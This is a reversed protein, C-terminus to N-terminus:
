EHAQKRRASIRRYIFLTILPVILWQLLPALGIGSVLPMARAYSWAGLEYVNRWESFVTYGVGMLTGIAAGPWPRTFPWDAASLLLGTLLFVLTAIVVDGITCHLVFYALRAGGLERPFEYLPLQAIEWLLNLLLAILAWITIGGCLQKFRRIGRQRTTLDM